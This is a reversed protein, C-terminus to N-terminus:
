KGHAPRLFQKICYLPQHHFVGHRPKFLYRHKHITREAYVRGLYVFAACPLIVIFLRQFHQFHAARREVQGIKPYGFRSLFALEDVELRAAVYYYGGGTHAIRAPYPMVKLMIKIPRIRGYQENAILRVARKTAYQQVPSLANFEEALLYLHVGCYAHYLAKGAM